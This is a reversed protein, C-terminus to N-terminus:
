QEEYDQYKPQQEQQPQVPAQPQEQEVPVPQRPDVSKAREPNTKRADILQTALLEVESGLKVRTSLQVEEMRSLATTIIDLERRTLTLTVTKMHEGSPM